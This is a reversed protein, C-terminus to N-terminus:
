AVEVPVVEPDAYLKPDAYWPRETLQAGGRSTLDVKACWYNSGGEIAGVFMDAIREPSVQQTITISM